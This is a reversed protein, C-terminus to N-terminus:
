VTFRQRQKICLLSICYRPTNAASSIKSSIRQRTRSSSQWQQYQKLMQIVHLNYL